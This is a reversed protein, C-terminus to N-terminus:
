PVLPRIEGPPDTNYCAPFLALHSCQRRSNGLLKCLVKRHVVRLSLLFIKLGTLLEGQLKYKTTNFKVGVGKNPKGKEFCPTLAGQQFAPTTRHSLTKRIRLVWPCKLPRVVLVQNALVSGSLQKELAAEQSWFTSITKARGLSGWAKSAATTLQKEKLRWQGHM